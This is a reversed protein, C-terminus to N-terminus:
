GSSRVTEAILRVVLAENEIFPLHGSSELRHLAIHAPVAQGTEQASIITDRRGVIVRCPGTYSALMGGVSFLQTSGEFLAEAVRRLRATGGQAERAAHTARVMSAPLNAPDHVLRQMQIAIAAESRADLYGAVFGGDISPGLGAPAILTLSRVTLGAERTLAVAVAAGLSHGVLHVEGGLTRVVEAVPEVIASFGLMHAEPSAGHSPLDLAVFANPLNLVTALHRWAAIEGGFGHIFLIPIGTGDKLTKVNLGPGTAAASLAPAGLPKGAKAQAAEVDRVVVAGDPGTGQLRAIDLGNSRAVRRALPSSRGHGDSAARKSALGLVPKPEPSGNALAAGPRAPGAVNVPKAEGGSGLVVLPQLVTAIDGVKYPLNIVIGNAFAEVEFTAKESEVEAVIDGRKVTDGLAVHLAVVKAETLDQGVQPVLIADSM